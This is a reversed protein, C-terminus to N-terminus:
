GNTEETPKVFPVQKPEANIQNLLQRIEYSREAIHQIKRENKLLEKELKEKIVKKRMPKKSM